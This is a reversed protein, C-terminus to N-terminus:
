LKVEGAEAPRVCMIHEEKVNFASHRGVTIEGRELACIRDGKKIPGKVGPGVAIVRLLDNHKSNDPADVFSSMKLEEKVCTLYVGYGNVGEFVSTESM